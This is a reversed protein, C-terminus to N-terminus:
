EKIREEIARQIEEPIHDLLKGMSHVMGPLPKWTGACQNVGQPNTPDSSMCYISEGIIITYRDVTKGGNDFVQVQPKM